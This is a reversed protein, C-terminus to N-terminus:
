RIRVFNGSVFAFRMVRGEIIAAATDYSVELGVDGAQNEIGITASGGTAEDADNSYMEGYQFVVEGSGEYLILNFTLYSDYYWELTPVARWEVVFTRNPATGSTGYYIDGDFGPDLDDWFPAIFGDCDYNDNPIDMNDYEDCVTGLTILGNSNISAETYDTGYFPFTFGIPVVEYADDSGAGSAVTTGEMFQPVLNIGSSASPTLAGSTATLVFGSGPTDISIGGFTAVGAVASVTTTGWLTAVATPDNTMAVTVMDTADSVVTGLADLLTVTLPTLFDGVVASSAASIAIADLVQAVTVSVANSTVASASATINATGNAVATVTGNSAVTAVGTADSAWTFTVGGISAGCADKAVASLSQTAGVSTFTFPGTPTM